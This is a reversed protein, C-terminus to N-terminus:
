GVSVIISIGHLIFIIFLTLISHFLCSFAALLLYLPSPPLLRLPPITPCSVYPLRRLLPSTLSSANMGELLAYLGLLGEVFRQWVFMRLFLCFVGGEEVEWVVVCVCVCNGLVSGGEWVSM